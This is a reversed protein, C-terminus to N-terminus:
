RKLVASLFKLAHDLWTANLLFDDRNEQYGIPNLRETALSLGHWLHPYLICQYPVKAKRLSEAMMVTNVVPVDHDEETAWLFTPPYNKTVHKEVSLFEILEEKGGTIVNRTGQHTDKGMTIVPYSLVLANLDTDHSLIGLNKKLEESRELMAYSAGLHGGASFGIACIAKPDIRLKEAHSRIFDVAAMMEAQPVPYAAHTTYWLTFCSYEGALFASVVPDAERRSLFEYGGGPLIIMARSLPLKEFACDLFHPINIELIPDNSLPYYQNLHIEQHIM